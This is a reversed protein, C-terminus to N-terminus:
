KRFIRFNEVIRYRGLVDEEKVGTGVNHTILLKKIYM